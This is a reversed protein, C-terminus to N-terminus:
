KKKACCGACGACHLANHKKVPFVIRYTSFLVYGASAAIFTYTFIDQIM